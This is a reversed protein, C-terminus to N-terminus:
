ETISKRVNVMIQHRRYKKILKICTLAKVRKNRKM